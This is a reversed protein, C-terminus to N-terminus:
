ILAKKERKEELQQRTFRTPQPLSPSFFVEMNITTLPPIGQKWLEAKM